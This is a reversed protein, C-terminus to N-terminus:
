GLKKVEKKSIVDKKKRLLVTTRERGKQVQNAQV